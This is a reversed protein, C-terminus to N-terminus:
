QGYCYKMGPQFRGAKISRSIYLLQLVREQKNLMREKFFWGVLAAEFLNRGFNRLMNFLIQVHIWLLLGAFNSFIVRGTLNELISDLVYCHIWDTVLLKIQNATKRVFLKSYKIM